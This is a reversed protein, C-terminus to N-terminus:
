IYDIHAHPTSCIVILWLKGSMLSKELGLHLPVELYMDAETM